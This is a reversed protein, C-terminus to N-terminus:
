GGQHEALYDCFKENDNYIWPRVKAAVERRWERGHLMGAMEIMMDTTSSRTIYSIRLLGEDKTAELDNSELWRMWTNEILTVADAGFVQYFKTRPLDVMAMLMMKLALERGVEKDGDWIDDFVQSIEAAFSFFEVADTNNKFAWLLIEREEEPTKM